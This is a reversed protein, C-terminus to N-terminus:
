ACLWMAFCRACPACDACVQLSAPHHFYTWRADMMDNQKAADVGLEFVEHPSIRLKSGGSAFVPARENYLKDGRYHNQPLPVRFAEGEFWVLLDAFPMKFTNVRLDQLVVVKKEFLDQLPYNSRSGVPRTFAHEGFIEILPKLVHSKGVDKPGYIFVNLRKGCGQQLAKKIAARLADATPKEDPLGDAPYAQLQKALLDHTLAQWQGQCVCPKKSSAQVVLDWACANKLAFLEPAGAADLAFQVRRSIDAQHKYMYAEVGILTMHDAQSLAQPNQCLQVRSSGVWAQLALVSNLGKSVVHAAFDKDTLAVNAASQVGTQVQLFRRIREKDVARAGRPIDAIMDKVSPHGTSLWPSADLDAETKDGPGAGPVTLYVFSTWYYDHSSSMDVCIKEAWLARVLPVFCWADDALMIFHYHIEGSTHKEEFVAVKLLRNHRIRQSGDPLVGTFISNFIRSLLDGFGSKPM